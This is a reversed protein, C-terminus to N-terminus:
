MKKRFDEGITSIIKVKSMISDISNKIQGTFAEVPNPSNSCLITPLKNQLRTRFVLELTKGFLDSSLEGNFWRGDFEDIMLFDAMLLEKRVIPKQNYDSDILANVIDGLTSYCCKYNKQCAIKLIATGITTKGSGHPSAFCINFGLNYINPLDNVYTNYAELLARSGVFKAMDLDWYLLPINSEYYRNFIRTSILCKECLVDFVQEISKINKTSCIQCSNILEFIRNHLKREPINNLVESRQLEYNM